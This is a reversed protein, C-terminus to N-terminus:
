RQRRLEANGSLTAEGSSQRATDNESRFVAAFFGDTAEVAEVVQPEDPFERGSRGRRSPCLPAEGDAGRTKAAVLTYPHKGRARGETGVVEPKRADADLFYLKSGGFSGDDVDETGVEHITRGDVIDFGVDGIGVSVGIGAGAKDILMLPLREAHFDGVVDGSQEAIRFQLSQAIHQGLVRTGTVVVVRLANIPHGKGATVYLETNGVTVDM